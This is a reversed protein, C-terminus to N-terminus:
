ELIRGVCKCVVPREAGRAALHGRLLEHKRLWEVAGETLVYVFQCRCASMKYGTRPYPGEVEVEFPVAARLNREAPTGSWLKGPHARQVEFTM